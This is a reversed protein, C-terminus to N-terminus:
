IRDVRPVPVGARRVRLVDQDCENLGGVVTVAVLGAVEAFEIVEAVEAVAPGGIIVVVQDHQQTGSHRDESRRGSRELV